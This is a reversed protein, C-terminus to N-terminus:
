PRAHDRVWDVAAAPDTVTRPYDVGPAEILVLDRDTRKAAEWKANLGGDPGSQKSVIADVDYEELLCAEFTASLPPWIALTDRPELGAARAAELSDPRPLLRALLREGDFGEVFPKLHKVGITLLVRDYNGTVERAEPWNTTRVLNPHNEPLVNPRDLFLYPQDNERAVRIARRSIEDAFPHTADILAFPTYETLLQSLTQDDLRGVRITLQDSDPYLKRASKRTVTVLINFGADLLQEVLDGSRSTGGLVVVDVEPKEAVM